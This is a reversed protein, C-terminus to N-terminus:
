AADVDDGTEMFTDSKERDEAGGLRLMEAGPCDVVAVIVTVEWFPNEPNTLRCNTPEPQGGPPVHVNEGVDTDTVPDVGPCDTKVM